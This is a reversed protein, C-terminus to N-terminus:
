CDRWLRAQEGPAYLWFKRKTSKLREEALRQIEKYEEETASFNTGQNGAKLNLLKNNNKIENKLIPSNPFNHTIEVNVFTRWDDRLELEKSYDDLVEESTRNEQKVPSTVM